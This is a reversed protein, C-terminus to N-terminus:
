RNEQPVMLIMTIVVYKGPGDRLALIKLPKCNINLLPHYEGNKGENVGIGEPRIKSPVPAVGGRRQKSGGVQFKPIKCPNQICM